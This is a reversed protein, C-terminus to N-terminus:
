FLPSLATMAAHVKRGDASICWRHLGALNADDPRAVLATINFCTKKKKNWESRTETRKGGRDGGGGRTSCKKKRTTKHRGNCKM